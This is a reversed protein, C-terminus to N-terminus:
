EGQAARCDVAQNTVPCSEVCVGCGTCLETNISRARKKIKVKFNGPSGEVSEIDSYTILEINLHRGVEVLKPSIM